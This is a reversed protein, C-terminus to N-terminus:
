LEVALRGEFLLVARGGVRVDRPSGPEGGVSAVITSPRGLEDGQAIEVAGPAAGRAVRLAALAGAASGTAPDEAIGMRPAFMRQALRGAALECWAVLGLAPDAIAGIAAQDAAVRALTARDRVEALVFRVGTSAVGPPGALDNAALGLLAAVEDAPPEPGIEAPAQTMTAVGGSVAVPTDGVRTRFVHTGEAPVRGRRALDLTAGVVPHGAVPMEILPTFIRLARGGDRVFITESIGIEAALAQMAEDSLADADHVVALPNGGLPRDTFVDLWSLPLGAM